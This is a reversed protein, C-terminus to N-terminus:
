PRGEFRVIATLLFLFQFVYAGTVLTVVIGNFLNWNFEKRSAPKPRPELGEFM